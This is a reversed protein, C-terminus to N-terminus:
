GPRAPGAVAVLGVREAHLLPQRDRGGQELVGLQQDEVLRGVAEVRGADALDALGDAVSPSDPTVTRSLECMRASTCCTHVETVIM